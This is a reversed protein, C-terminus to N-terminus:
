TKLIDQNIRNYGLPKLTTWFFTSAGAGPPGCFLVVDTDNRKEFSVGTSSADLPFKALDFDRRFPRPEQDLFFEEPTKFTIGLNHALNRDSCSFDKAEAKAGTAGGKLAAVRGGADGIFISNALDPDDLGYDKCLEEWM